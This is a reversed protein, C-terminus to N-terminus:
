GLMAARPVTGAGRLRGGAAPRPSAVRRRPREGIDGGGGYDRSFGLRHWGSTVLERLRELVWARYEDTSLDGPEDLDYGAFQARIERRLHAWQGDLVATLADAHM